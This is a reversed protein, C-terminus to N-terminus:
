LMNQSITKFKLMAQVQTEQPLLSFVCCVSFGNKAPLRM